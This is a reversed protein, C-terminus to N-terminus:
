SKPLVIHDLFHINERVYSPRLHAGDMYIPEGNADITSCTSERCLADFPDILTAGARQGIEILQTKLPDYAKSLAVRDLPLAEIRFSLDTLSRKVMGRPNATDHAPIPLLLYVQKGSDTLERLRVELTEFARQASQTGLALSGAIAGDDFYYSYQDEPEVFYAYWAAGVVITKVDPQNAYNFGREIIGACGPHHSETVHPIPVCGGSSAFVIGRGSEPNRTLLWDLRPYYQEINSDGIFLIRGQAPGQALLQGARTPILQLNPGPFAREKSPRLYKAVDFSSSRPPMLSFSTILGFVGLGAAMAALPMVVRTGHRYSRIPREVLWYTLTAFVFALVVAAFIVKPTPEGPSIIRTFSLLPWHWLYLPYSILGIAVLLRNGLLVRNVWPTPGASILLFAGATPLLAWWGPFVRHRDLLALAAVILGLGVAAQWDRNVFLRTQWRDLPETRFQQAYALLCGVLLEWIRTPPLYFTTQPHGSVRLLNLIFSGAAIGLLLPWQISRWRWTLALLLPWLIYFQEEIGLSWLHLLPKLEASVDFYGSERWLVLNSVFGIGAAIHKGLQEHEDPYLVLWGVAFVTALMLLLAPFIRKIRRVYFDGLTFTGRAVSALVISSILYGSIVFFIDVGAFGGPMWHPTAHFAIVSLVAVARLGDIDPRYAPHV